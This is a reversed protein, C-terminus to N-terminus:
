PIDINNDDGKIGINMIYSIYMIPDINRNIVIEQLENGSISM